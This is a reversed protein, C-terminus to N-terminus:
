VLQKYLEVTKKATEEWSFQSAYSNARHKMKVLKEAPLTLIREIKNICDALDNKKYISVADSANLEPNEGLDSVLLLCGLALGQNFANSGAIGTLPLFQLDSELYHTFLEADPINELYTINSFTKAMKKYKEDLMKNVLIFKRNKCAAVVKFYFEWDRLWNGVTIIQGSKGTGNKHASYYNNFRQNMKDLHIGLPIYHIKNEPLVQKLVDKQSMNTIIAAGLSKFRQKNFTHTLKGVRGRYDGSVIDKELLEPPQHFTVVVPINKFLRTSWRFYDEGYLIHVLDIENRYKFAKFEFLWPYKLYLKSESNLTDRENIGIVKYPHTFKLIQKYGSDEGHHIFDTRIALVKIDM